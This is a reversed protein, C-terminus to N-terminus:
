TFTLSDQRAGTEVVLSYSTLGIIIIIIIYNKYTM